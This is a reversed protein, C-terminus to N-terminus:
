NYPGPPASLGVDFGLPLQLGCLLDYRSLMVHDTVISHDRPGLLSITQM